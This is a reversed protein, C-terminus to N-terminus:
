FRLPSGLLKLLLDAAGHLDRVNVAEVATGGYRVPIDIVATPVGQGSQAITQADHQGDPSSGIEIQLPISFDAATQQVLEALPLHAMFGGDKLKLAPGGGLNVGRQPGGPVEAPTLDVTIALDPSLGYAAVGSGRPGVQGQCTFAFLLDHESGELYEAVQLLVACGARNDLGPGAVLDGMAQLDGVLTCIDGLAVNELAEARSSAGIDCWIRKFEIEKVDAVPEHQLVGVVGGGWVVRQGMANQTRLGGVPAVRILGQENAETAIAGITDMHASLMVRLGQGSGRRVALLNGFRDTRVEDAFPAIMEQLLEAVRQERGAPGWAATLRHLREMM